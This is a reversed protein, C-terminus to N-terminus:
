KSSNSIFNLIQPQSYFMGPTYHHSVMSSVTDPEWGALTVFSEQSLIEELLSNSQLQALPGLQALILRHAALRVGDCVFWLDSLFEEAQFVGFVPAM